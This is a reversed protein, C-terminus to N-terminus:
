SNKKNKCNEPLSMLMIHLEETYTLQINLPEDNIVSELQALGLKIHILELAREFNIDGLYFIKPYFKKTEGISKERAGKTSASFNFIITEAREGFTVEVTINYDFFRELDDPYTAPFQFEIPCHTGDKLRCHFDLYKTSGNLTTIDGKLM